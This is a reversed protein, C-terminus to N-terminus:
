ADQIAEIQKQKREGIYQETTVEEFSASTLKKSMSGSVFDKAREYAEIKKNLKEKDEEIDKQLHQLINSLDSKVDDITAPFLAIDDTGKYVEVKGVLESYSKKFLLMVVFTEDGSNLLDTVIGFFVENSSYEKKILKIVNGKQLDTIRLINANSQIITKTQM